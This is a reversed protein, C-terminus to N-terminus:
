LKKFVRTDESFVVDCDEIAELARPTLDKINGIPTTVLYLGSM